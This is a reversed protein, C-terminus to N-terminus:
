EPSSGILRHNWFRQKNTEVIFSFFRKFNLFSIMQFTIIIIEEIRNIIEDIAGINKKCYNVNFYNWQNM